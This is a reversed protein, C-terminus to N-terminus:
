CETISCKQFGSILWQSVRLKHSYTKATTDLFIAHLYFYVVSYNMSILVIQPVYKRLNYSACAATSLKFEIFDVQKQWKLKNDLYVRLCNM